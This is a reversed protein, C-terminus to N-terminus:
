PFNEIRVLAYLSGTKTIYPPSSSFTFYPNGAGGQGGSGMRWAGAGGSSRLWMNTRFTYENSTNTGYVTYVGNSPITTLVDDVTDVVYLYRLSVTNGSGVSLTLNGSLTLDGTSSLSMNQTYADGLTAEGFSFGGAAGTGRQNILYSKEDGNNRNWQLWLGQCDVGRPPDDSNIGGNGNLIIQNTGGSRIRRSVLIDGTFTATYGTLGGTFIATTGSIGGRTNL